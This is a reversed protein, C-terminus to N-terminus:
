CNPDDTWRIKDAILLRGAVGKLSGTLLYTRNLMSIFILKNKFGLTITYKNCNRTLLSNENSKSIRQTIVLLQILKLREM